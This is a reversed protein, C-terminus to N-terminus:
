SARSLGTTSFVVVDYSFCALKKMPRWGPVPLVKVILGQAKEFRVLTGPQLFNPIAAGMVHVACGDVGGNQTTGCVLFSSQLPFSGPLM